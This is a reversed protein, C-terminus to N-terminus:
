VRSYVWVQRGKEIMLERKLNGANLQETLRKEAASRKLGAATLYETTTIGYGAPRTPTAPYVENLFDLLDNETM